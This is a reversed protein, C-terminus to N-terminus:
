CTWWKDIDFNIPKPVKQLLQFELSQCNQVEQIERPHIGTKDRNPMLLECKGM